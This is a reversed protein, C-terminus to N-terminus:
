VLFFVFLGAVEIIDKDALGVSSLMTSSLVQKNQYYLSITSSPIELEREIECKIDLGTEPQKWFNITAMRDPRDYPMLRVHYTVLPPASPSTQGPVPRKYLRDLIFSFTVDQLLDKSSDLYTFPFYPGQTSHVCLTHTHIYRYIYM